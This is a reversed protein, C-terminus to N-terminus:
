GVGDQEGGAGADAPSGDIAELWALAFVALFMVKRRVDRGRANTALRVGGLYWLRSGPPPDQREIPLGAVVRSREELVEELLRRRPSITDSRSPETM